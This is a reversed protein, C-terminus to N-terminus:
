DSKRKLIEARRKREEESLPPKTDIRVRFVRVHAVLYGNNHEPTEIIEVAKPDVKALKMIANIYKLQSVTVTAMDEGTIWEISNERM